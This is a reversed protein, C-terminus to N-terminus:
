HYAMSPRTPELSFDDKPPVATAPLHTHGDLWAIAALPVHWTEQRTLWSKNGSQEASALRLSQGSRIRWFHFAFFIQVTASSWYYDMDLM